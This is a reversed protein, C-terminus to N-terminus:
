IYNEERAPLLKVRARAVRKMSQELLEYGGGGLKVERTSYTIYRWDM